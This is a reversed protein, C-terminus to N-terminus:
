VDLLDKTWGLIEDFSGWAAESYRDDNSFEAITPQLRKMTLEVCRAKAVTNKHKFEPTAGRAVRRAAVHEICQPVPTTLAWIYAGHQKILAETRIIEGSLILGEFLVNFGAELQRYVLGFVDDLETITDCGGCAAEYHGLVALPLGGKRHRHVTLIPRKRGERFEPVPDPAYLEMVRRALTTKGSGSTGRFNIAIPRKARATIM